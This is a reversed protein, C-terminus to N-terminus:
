NKATREEKWCGEWLMVALGGEVRAFCWRLDTGNQACGLEAHTTATVHASSSWAAARATASSSAQGEGAEEGIAAPLLSPRRM